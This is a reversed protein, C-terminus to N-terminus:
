CFNNISTIRAGVIWCPKSIYVVYSILRLRGIDIGAFEKMIIYFQPTAGKFIRAESKVPREELSLESILM